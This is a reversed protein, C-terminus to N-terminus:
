SDHRQTSEGESQEEILRKIHLELAEKEEPTMEPGVWDYM